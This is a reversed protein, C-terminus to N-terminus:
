QRNVGQIYDLMYYPVPRANFSTKFDGRRPSNIGVFDVAALRRELARRINELVLFTGSGTDRYEPDNAGIYYYAYREDYLFLTASAPEGDGLRCVLLEGFGSRVAAESVALLVKEEEVSRTVGQRKFTAAHLRNLLQVDSSPEINLGREVGMRYEQRRVTRVQALLTDFDVVAHLGLLGTYGIKAAFTGRGPEHYNFWQFGRIDQFRHSLCLSIRTYRRAMAALLFEVREPLWRACRHHPMRESEACCLAGHYMTLPYPAPLVAGDHLMVVAGMTIHGGEEIVPLEYDDALADLFRSECFITGQPSKVVFADWRQKDRCISFEMRM